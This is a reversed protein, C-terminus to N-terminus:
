YQQYVPTAHAAGTENSPLAVAINHNITLLPGYKDVEDM